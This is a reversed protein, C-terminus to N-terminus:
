LVKESLFQDLDGGSFLHGQIGFKEAAAMDSPKDGIFFSLQPEVGLFQSVKEFMAMGPKRAPCNAEPADPCYCFCDIETEALMMDCLDLFQDESYLGRGIGSQNTAVVVRYGLSKLASVARVAGDIWEFDARRCVYGHDKNLVGDRDLFATPRPEFIWGEPAATDPCGRFVRTMNSGWLSLRTGFEM